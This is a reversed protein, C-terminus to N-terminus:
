SPSCLVLFVTIFSILFTLLLISRLISRLGPADPGVFHPWVQLLFYQAVRGIFYALSIITLPVFGAVFYQPDLAPLLGLKNRWANFAWVVYGTIYLMTAIVLLRDRADAMSKLYRGVEARIQGSSTATDGPEKM